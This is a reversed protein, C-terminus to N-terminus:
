LDHNEFLWNLIKYWALQCSSTHINVILGYDYLIGWPLSTAVGDCHYKYNSVNSITAQTM